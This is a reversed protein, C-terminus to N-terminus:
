HYQHDDLLGIYPWDSHGPPRSTLLIDLSTQIRMCVSRSLFREMEDWWLYMVRQTSLWISEGQSHLYLELTMLLYHTQPWQPNDWILWVRIFWTKYLMDWHQAVTQIMAREKITFVIFTQGLDQHPLSYHYDLRYCPLWDRRLWDKFHEAWHCGLSHSSDLQGRRLHHEISISSCPHGRPHRHLMYQNHRRIYILLGQQGLTFLQGTSIMNYWRILPIQFSGKLRLGVCPGIGWWVLPELM